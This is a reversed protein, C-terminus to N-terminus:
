EPKWRKSQSAVIDIFRGVVVLPNTRPNDIEASCGFKVPGSWDYHCGDIAPSLSKKSDHNNSSEELVVRRPKQRQERRKWAASMTRYARLIVVFTDPRELAFSAVISILRDLLLKGPAVVLTHMTNGKWCHVSYEKWPSSSHESQDNRRVM